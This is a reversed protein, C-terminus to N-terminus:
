SMFRKSLNMNQSQSPVYSYGGVSLIYPTAYPTLGYSDSMEGSYTEDIHFLGCVCPSM